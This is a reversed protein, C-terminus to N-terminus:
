VGQFAKDYSYVEQEPESICINIIIDYKGDSLLMCFLLYKDGVTIIGICRCSHDDRDCVPFLESSRVNCFFRWVRLHASDKHCQFHFFCRIM